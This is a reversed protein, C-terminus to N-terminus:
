KREEVLSIAGRPCEEACIACGKCYALDIQYGVGDNSRAVALDPCFLWCNDCGTCRGCHFCRGAERQAAPRSLGRCVEDFGAVREAVPLMLPRERTSRAFYALNIAEAELGPPPSPPHAAALKEHLARGARMGSALAEAVTAPRAKGGLAGALDGGFLVIPGEGQPKTPECEEAGAWDFAALPERDVVQGTALVVLDAQLLRESGTACRIAAARDSLSFSEVRGLVLLVGSRDLGLDLVSTRDEIAVGEREAERCEDNDAPMQSREELCVITARAGLRLASRAADVAASGGGVVVIRGHSPLPAKAKIKALFQTAPLIRRSDPLALHFPRPAQLGTAVFVAAFGRLEGLSFDRGMRKNTRLEIGCGSMRELEADLIKEPLRYEPIGYRLLGGAKENQEFVTPLYGLRAAHYAFGLGAPGGGVVAVNRNKRTALRPLPVERAVAEDGAVRELDRIALPQDLRSRSCRAECPKFCVRGCVAPLPNTEVLLHWADIPSGEALRSIFGEIDNGLPCATQCPATARRYEPRLHRWTGTLSVTAQAKCVVAQPLDRAGPLDPLPKEAPARM